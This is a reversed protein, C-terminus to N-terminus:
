ETEDSYREVVFIGAFGMLICIWFQPYGMKISDILGYHSGFGRFVVNVLIGLVFMLIECAMFVLVAQGAIPMILKYTIFYYGLAYLAFVAVQLFYFGIIEGQSLYIATPTHVTKFVAESLLYATLNLMFFTLLTLVLKSDITGYKLWFPFIYSLAVSFCIFYPTYLEVLLWRLGEWGTIVKVEIIWALWSVLALIAIASLTKKLEINTMCKQNNSTLQQNSTTYHTAM